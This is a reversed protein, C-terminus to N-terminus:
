PIGEMNQFLSDGSSISAPLRYGTGPLAHGCTQRVAELLEAAPTMRMALSLM